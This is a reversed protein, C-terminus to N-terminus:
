KNYKILEEKKSKLENEIEEHEQKLLAYKKNYEEKTIRGDIFNDILNSEHYNIQKKLRKELVKIEEQLESINLSVQYVSMDDISDNTVGILDKREKINKSFYDYTLINKIKSIFEESDKRNKKLESDIVSIINNYINKLDTNTTFQNHECSIHVEKGRSTITSVIEWWKSQNINKKWYRDNFQILFGVGFLTNQRNSYDYNVEIKYKEFKYTSFTDYEEYM